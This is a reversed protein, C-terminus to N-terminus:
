KQAEELYSNSERTNDLTSGINEGIIDIDEGQKYTLRQTEQSIQHINILKSHVEQLDKNKQKM